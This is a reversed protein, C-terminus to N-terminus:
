PLAAADVDVFISDVTNNKGNPFVFTGSLARNQYLYGDGKTHSGPAFFYISNIKPVKKVMETSAFLMNIKAAGAAPTFGGDAAEFDFASYFREDDMVEILTVGDINTIRTQIGLGSDAITNMVIQRSFEKSRELLDMVDSRVYGILSGRQIYARLKGAKLAAKIKTFVNDVTYQAAFPTATALGATKAEAYVKSFFEADVEPNAQLETFKQSVNQITATQNSEDVDAKDIQFEIDRDHYLTFPVDEQSINGSNWGGNRSHKKYGSVSMQTFHFTKASLWRVNDTIFPSCLTGQIITQLLEARWQEAYNIVNAM